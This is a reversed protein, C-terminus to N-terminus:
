SLGNYFQLFNLKELNKQIKSPLTLSPPATPGCFFIAFSLLLSFGGEKKKKKKKKKKGKGWKGLRM